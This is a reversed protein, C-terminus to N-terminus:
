GKLKRKIKQYLDAGAGPREYGILFGLPKLENSNDFIIKLVGFLPVFLILGAFGWIAGGLVIALVVFLPSQQVESGIIVPELVYSEILQIILVIVSFSIIELSSDGLVMMFLIPFLGSVFPGIYPIITVLVGFIILLVSYELNYAFFTITYMIALILMVQIRGWLYNHAVLKTQNLIHSTNEKKNEPIYKMFFHFFKSRNILILIVYILTLLFKLIVGTLDSLTDSLFVQVNKLTESLNEQIIKNQEELSIGTSKVLNEQLFDVFKIIEEKRDLLDNLFITLHRFLFFFIVSIGLFLILTSVLSSFIRGMELRMELFNSIPLVLTSLFIAFTIPILVSAGFYLGAIILFCFILLSNAKQLKSKSNAM